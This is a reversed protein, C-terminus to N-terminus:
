VAKPHLENYQKPKCYTTSCRSATSQVAKIQLVNYQMQICYITSSQHWPKLSPDRALWPHANWQTPVQLPRIRHMTAKTILNLRRALKIHLMKSGLSPTSLREDAHASAALAEDSSSADHHNKTSATAGSSEICHM